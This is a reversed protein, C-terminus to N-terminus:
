FRHRSLLLGVLGLAVLGFPAAIRLATWDVPGVFSLWLSLAAVTTFLVGFILAVVDFRRM